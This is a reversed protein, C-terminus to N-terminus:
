DSLKKRLEDISIGSNILNLIEMDRHKKGRKEAYALQAM